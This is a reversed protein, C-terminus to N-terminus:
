KVPKRSFFVNDLKNPKERERERERERKVEKYGYNKSIRIMNVECKEVEMRNQELTFKIDAERAAKMREICPPNTDTYKGLTGLNVANIYEM